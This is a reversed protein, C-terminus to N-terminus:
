SIEMDPHPTRIMQRNRVYSMLYLLIQSSLCSEILYKSPTPLDDSSKSHLEGFLTINSFYKFLSQELWSSRCSETLYKGCHQKIILIDEYRSPTRTDDSSKSRLEGFLTINSLYKFLSQQLCASLCSETLYKSPTRTDDSSKSCLENFLTINSLHQLSITRPLLFSM